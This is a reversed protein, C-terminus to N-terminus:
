SGSPQAAAGRARRADIRALVQEPKLDLMCRFHGLPCERKFCPSCELELWLVDAAPSLPPTFRPSSSGFLALLPRDLAAAVHMLGSDNTVVFRAAALLDIAQDLGTAGCLNRCAGPALTAIEAGVAKDKGSGILWVAHGRSALARALEAFYAAPWRKAPGYEAGPCFAVPAPDDELGLVAVTAQQRADDASLRPQPPGEGLPAGAPDALAAYRQVNKPLAAEDLVHRNNLLGYRAEGTYGTRKPIRAFFPVLASKWSNPLVIAEDYRDARLTNGLRLRAALAFEGHVFPNDIVRRLEPMRRLVPEVWAPAMVDLALGPHKRHLRVFLPQAAVSDGIWSPAVVLIKM